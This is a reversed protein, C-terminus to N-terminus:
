RKLSEKYQFYKERVLDYRKKHNESLEINNFIKMLNNFMFGSRFFFPRTELFCLYYEIADSNRSKLEKKYDEIGQWYALHPYKKHFEDCAQSWKEHADPNKQTKLITYAEDIRKKLRNIEITNRKILQAYNM